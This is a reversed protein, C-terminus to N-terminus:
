EGCGVIPTTSPQRITLRTRLHMVREGQGSALAKDPSIRGATRLDSVLPRAYANDDVVTRAM